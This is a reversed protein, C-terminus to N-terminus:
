VPNKKVSDLFHMLKIDIFPSPNSVGPDIVRVRDLSGDGNKYFVNSIATSHIFNKGKKGAKAKLNFITIRIIYEDIGDFFKNCYHHYEKINWHWKHGKKSMVPESWLFISTKYLEPIYGIIRSIDYGKHRYIKGITNVPIEVIRGDKDNCIPSLRRVYDEAAKQSMPEGLPIEVVKINLLETETM